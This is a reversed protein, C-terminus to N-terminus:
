KFPGIFSTKVEELEKKDSLVKVKVDISRKKIKEKSIRIFIAGEVTQHPITTPQKGVYEITGEVNQLEFRIPFSEETKNILQYNYLNKIYGNDEYYMTGPTRLILTQVDSRSTFLFIELVVLGILVATYAFVRPTWISTSKGVINNYSDIRVLGKPREVKEMIADCADMCATCNICELQTGNRIDIGTPCVRVCLGCDICDGKVEETLQLTAINLVADNKAKKKKGRPEGREFDYAVVLSDNDLLVGQMRGYPCITTCVQERLTSFVGYFLGTFVIMALFGQWNEAIPQQVIDIVADIGIFYALFTHAILISIGIFIAHKVTKKIIKSKNWPEKNLRKQATYDGEIWYEIKRFVMEMFITQPCIWGCFLRGFIVTFLSIFLIGIIMAIVFLYFDQPGFYLGFLIFKREVLNFLVFPKDNYRIWPLAFLTILLLWSLWTRYNYFTGKPKKPYVWIRKGDKDVTAIKDKFRKDLLAEKNGEQM